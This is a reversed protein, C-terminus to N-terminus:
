NKSIAAHQVELRKMNKKLVVKTHGELLSVLQQIKDWSPEPLNNNGSDAGINVQVPKAMLILEPFVTIDFDMIPEITVYRDFNKYLSMFLARIEPSPTAGMHHPYWRNTEITTCVVSKKPLFDAYDYLRAPNKTQFLYRNEFRRCHELTAEIWDKKVKWAFMDNSSGTFIFNGTGLDTNLERRDFHIKGPTGWRKMYCYSCDHYCRGKVTNWTHTIFEYMNGKSANLGM